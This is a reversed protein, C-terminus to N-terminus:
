TLKLSMGNLRYKFYLWILAENRILKYECNLQGNWSEHRKEEIKKKKKLEICQIEIEFM